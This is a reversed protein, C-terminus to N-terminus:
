ICICGDRFIPIVRIGSKRRKYRPTEIYVFINPRNGPVRCEKRNWPEKKGAFLYFPCGGVTHPLRRNFAVTLFEEGKTSYWAPAFRHRWSRRRSEARDAAVGDKKVAVREKDKDLPMFLLQLRLESFRVRSSFFPVHEVSRSSNMRKQLRTTTAISSFITGYARAPILFDFETPCKYKSM